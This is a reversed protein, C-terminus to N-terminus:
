RAEEVCFVVVEGPGHVGVTLTMEIDATRSPGSVLAVVSAQTLLDKGGAALWAELSAHIDRARLVALHVAPLLSAVHSRGHGSPLVLTGTDALAAVACTLGVHARDLAELSERRAPDGAPVRGPVVTLGAEELRRRVEVLLPDGDEWAVVRRAGEEQLWGLVRDPLDAASVPLFTGGVAELAQRFAAVADAPPTPPRATPSTDPPPGAEGAAPKPLGLGEVWRQRFPREAFPPFHRHATWGCLPPPLRTLWGDRRPALRTLAAALRQAARFRRPSLALWAYLRLGARLWWPVLRAETEQRRVRVLLTPLDIAVPCAELCSGCLTSARALHGFDAVGFLGPSVVSGIPGPYVSGYAHGGVERYVPCANLCAGCRICLLAEELDGGRLATRGNDVLIVHREQPGDPEGERRPGQILSVYSTLRQGTASRPLLRLMLALDELTPVLREVGMLAIHVEPLTTVMRGNGENTVLCLTGTEAVGFNVGSVGVKAELFTRRLTQRAAATMAEVDTTYPINLARAFTQGVDERRLHVAPTIIHGPREGRLQLIFEGLDTEVVRLGAAELAHNLGIEESVMSKSKAVLDAGHRRAIELVLRCAEAADRARHVQFGNAQLRETFRALHAELDQVTRARVEHARRRLDEVDPLEAWAALRAATRREANRDLATQLFENVLAEQARQRFEAKM